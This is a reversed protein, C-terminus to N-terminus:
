FRPDHRLVKQVQKRRQDFLGRVLSDFLREDLARRPQPRSFDLRVVASDVAPPPVFCDRRVGFLYEVEARYSALVTLMGYPKGGAPATIKRAVEEQLMLVVTGLAEGSDILAHLLANTISYPINGVIVPLAPQVRRAWAAYDFAAADENLITVSPMSSFDQRLRAALALDLELGTLQKARCALEVTLRGGGSGIELVHADALPGLADVIRAAVEKSKLFHQGLMKRRAGGRRYPLVQRNRAM